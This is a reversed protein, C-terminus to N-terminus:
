GPAAWNAINWRGMSRATYGLLFWLRAMLVAGPASGKLLDSGVAAGVGLATVVLLTAQTLALIGIDVAKGILLEAPKITALLVEVVRTAKEEVVGILLWYGYRQM